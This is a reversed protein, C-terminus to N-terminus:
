LQKPRFGTCKCTSHNYHGAWQNGPTPTTIYTSVQGCCAGIGEAHSQSYHQCKPTGCSHDNNLLFPQVRLWLDGSKKLERIFVGRNSTLHQTDIVISRIVWMADIKPSDANWIIDRGVAFRMIDYVLAAKEEHSLTIQLPM